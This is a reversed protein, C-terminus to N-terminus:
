YYYYFIIPTVSECPYKSTRLAKLLNLVPILRGHPAHRCWHRLPASLRGNVM